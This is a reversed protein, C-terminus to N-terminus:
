KPLSKETKQQEQQNTSESIQNNVWTTVISIVGAIILILWWFKAPFQEFKLKRLTLDEIKETVINRELKTLYEKGKFEIKARIFDQKISSGDGFSINIGTGYAILKENKLDRLARKLTKENSELGSVDLPEGNDNESLYKLIKNELTDKMNRNELSLCLEYIGAINYRM